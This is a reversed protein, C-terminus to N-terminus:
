GPFPESWGNHHILQPHYENKREKEEGPIGLPFLAFPVVSEPIGLIRRMGTVRDERPHVGLWVSGLGEAVAALLMNEAAAACDQVWFGQRTERELDGCLLIATTVEKLMQAYPHVKMIEELTVRRDIVIFQWPQENGASPANMGAKIVALVQDRTVSGPKYRRISRRKYIIDM